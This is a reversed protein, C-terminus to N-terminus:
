LKKYQHTWLNLHHSDTKSSNKLLFPTAFSSLYIYDDDCSIKYNKFLKFDNKPIELITKNKFMLVDISLTLRTLPLKMM